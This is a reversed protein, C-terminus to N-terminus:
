NIRLVSDRVVIKPELLIYPEIEVDNISNILTTVTENALEQNKTKVTTLPPSLDKAIGIDDYGIVSVDKPVNLNNKKCARIVGLATMDNVAFVATPVSNNKLYNNFLEEARIESFNGYLINNENVKIQNEKLAIRYGELRGESAIRDMLGSIHVINKHGNEILYKTALYGGKVNDLNAVATKEMDITFSLNKVKNVIVIPFKSSIIRNLENLVSCGGTIIAGQITGDSLMNMVLKSDENKVISTVVNFNFNQASEIVDIIFSSIFASDRIGEVGYIFHGIINPKKGVLGRAASNPVYGYEKIIDRIRKKTAESIYSYDNVVGTVTSRSVGAIKAIEAATINKKM